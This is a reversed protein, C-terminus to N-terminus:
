QKYNALEKMILTMNKFYKNQPLIPCKKNNEGKTSPGESSHLHTTLEQSLHCSVHSDGFIM